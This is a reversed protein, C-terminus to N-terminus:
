STSCCRVHAVMVPNGDDVWQRMLAATPKEKESLFHITMPDIQDPSDLVLNNCNGGICTYGGNQQLWTNFTGPNIDTGNLTYGKGNLAMAVSSMACGQVCITDYEPDAALQTPFLLIARTHWHNVYQGGHYQEGLSPRMAQVAPIPLSHKSCCLTLCRVRAHQRFWMLRVRQRGTGEALCAGLLGLVALLATFRIMRGAVSRSKWEVLRVLRM